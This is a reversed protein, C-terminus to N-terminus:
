FPIDEDRRKRGGGRAPPAAPEDGGDDGKRALFQFNELVVSLKSRKQGDKEWTDLKLRGEVYIPNGKQVYQAIVEGQRGFAAVDVFAVEEREEGDATKYRRNMALGFETVSAGSKGLAKVDPDRTVNGVLIVKNVSAM